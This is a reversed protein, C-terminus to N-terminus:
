FELGGERAGEAVAKIIGHYTYKGRDFVVKKIKAAIAKEAIKKGMEHAVDMRAKDKAKVEKDSLSVLTANKVDDIVQLFIHKNSKSVCLRPRNIGGRFIKAKVKKKRLVRRNEIISIKKM